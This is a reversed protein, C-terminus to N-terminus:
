PCLSSFIDDIEDRRIKKIQSGGDKLTEKSSTNYKLDISSVRHADTKRRAGFKQEDKKQCRMEESKDGEACTKRFTRSADSEKRRDTKRSLSIGGEKRRNKLQRRKRLERQFSRQIRSLMKRESPLVERSHLTFNLFKLLALLRKTSCDVFDATALLSRLTYRCPTKKIFFTNEIRHLSKGPRTLFLKNHSKRLEDLMPTKRKGLEDLKCGIKIKNSDKSMETKTLKELNANQELIKSSENERFHKCIDRELDNEHVNKRVASALDFKLTLNTKLDSVTKDNTRKPTSYRTKDESHFERMDDVPEGLDIEDNNEEDKLMSPADSDNKESFLQNFIPNSSSVVSFADNVCKGDFIGKADESLWLTLSEPFKNLDLHNETLQILSRVLQYCEVLSTWCDKELVRFCIRAM